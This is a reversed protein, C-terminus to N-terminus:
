LMPQQLLQSHCDALVTGIQVQQFALLASDNEHDINAALQTESEQHVRM